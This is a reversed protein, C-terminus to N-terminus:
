AKIPLCHTRSALSCLPLHSDFVIHKEVKGLAVSKVSAQPLRQHHFNCNEVRSCELMVRPLKYFFGLSQAVDLDTFDSLNYANKLAWQLESLYQQFCHLNARDKQNKTENKQSCPKCSRLEGVLSRVRAGQLPLESDQGSSWEGPVVRKFPLKASNVLVLFTPARQGM